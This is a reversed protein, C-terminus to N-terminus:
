KEEKKTCHPKGKREGFPSIDLPAYEQGGPETVDKGFSIQRDAVLCGPLDRAAPASVSSLVEPAASIGFSCKSSAQFFTKITDPDIVALAM